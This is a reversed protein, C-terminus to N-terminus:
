DVSDFYDSPGRGGPFGCRRSEDNNSPATGEPVREAFSAAFETSFRKRRAVLQVQGEFSALM